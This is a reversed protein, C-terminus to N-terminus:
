FAELNEKPVNVVYLNQDYTLRINGDGYMKAANATEIMHTGSFIGSPVIMKYNFKGNRGLVKNSGLAISQSQVMTSVPLITLEFGAEEKIADIFNEIGVDNLLFVLRNKNRNDRYGYTKFVKLLTEFFHPVEEITVFLNADQAQM